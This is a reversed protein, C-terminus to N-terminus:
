QYIKIEVRRNKARARANRRSDLPQTESLGKPELRSPDVGAKRLARVVRVARLDSILYNYAVTGKYDAHGEIVVNVGECRAQKLLDAIQWVATRYRRLLRTRKFEFRV